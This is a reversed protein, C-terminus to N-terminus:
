IGERGAAYWRRSNAAKMEAHKKCRLGRVAKHLNYNPCDVCYGAAHLRAQRQKAYICAKRRCALCQSFGEVVNSNKCKKCKM